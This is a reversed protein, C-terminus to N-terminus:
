LRPKADSDQKRPRGRRRPRGTTLADDLPILVGQNDPVQRTEAERATLMADVEERFTELDAFDRYVSAFRIYAVRDLDKLRGMVMEGVTRSPIEARGLNQLQTEIENVVRDISGIPLPRKACALRISEMLKDRNFEERRGDRKVVSLATTQIREYTTFRLGCQLCERRRRIGEGAERSDIVHSDKHGCYPCHM